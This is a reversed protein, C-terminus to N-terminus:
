LGIIEIGLHFARAMRNYDSTNTTVIMRAGSKKACFLILGDYVVGGRFGKGALKKILESYETATLAALGAISSINRAILRQAEGPGIRPKFPARTLVSFTELLSYAAVVAEVEGAKAKQLWEFAPLHHPHREVCAAVLASTDLLIKM